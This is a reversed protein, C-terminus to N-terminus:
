DCIGRFTECMVQGAHYTNCEYVGVNVRICEEPFSEVDRNCDIMLRLGEPKEVIGGPSCKLPEPEPEVKEAACGVLLLVAILLAKM